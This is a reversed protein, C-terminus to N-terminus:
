CHWLQSVRWWPSVALFPFFVGFLIFISISKVFYYIISCFAYKSLFLVNSTNCNSFFSDSQTISLSFHFYNEYSYWSWDVCFFYLSLVAFAALSPMPPLPTRVPSHCRHRRPRLRSRWLSVARLATPGAGPLTVSGPEEVEGGRGFATQTRSALSPLQQQQDARMVISSRAWQWMGESGLIFTRSKPSDTTLDQKARSEIFLVTEIFLFKVEWCINVSLSVFFRLLNELVSQSNRGSKM